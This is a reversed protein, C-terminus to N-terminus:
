TKRRRNKKVHSYMVVAPKWLTSHKRVGTMHILFHQWLRWEVYSICSIEFTPSNHKKWECRSGQPGLPRCLLSECILWLRDRAPLTLLEVSWRRPSLEVLTEIGLVGWWRKKKIPPPKRLHTSFCYLFKFSTWNDPDLVLSLQIFTPPLCWKLDIM